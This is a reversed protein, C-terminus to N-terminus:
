GHVRDRGRNQNRRHPGPVRYRRTGLGATLCRVCLALVCDRTTPATLTAAPAQPGPTGKEPAQGLSGQHAVLAFGSRIALLARCGCAGSM